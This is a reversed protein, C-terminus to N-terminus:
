DRVFNIGAVCGATRYHNKLHLGVGILFDALRLVWKEQWSPKGAQISQLLHIKRFEEAINQQRAKVLFEIEYFNM